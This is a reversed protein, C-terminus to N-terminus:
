RLKAVQNFVRVELKGGLRELRKWAPARAMAVIVDQHGVLQTDAVQTHEIGGM